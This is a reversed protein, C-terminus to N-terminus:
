LTTFADRWCGIVRRPERRGMRVRWLVEGFSDESRPCREFALALLRGDEEDSAGTAQSSRKCCPTIGPDLWVFALSDARWSRIPGAEHPGAVISLQSPASHRVPRTTLASM